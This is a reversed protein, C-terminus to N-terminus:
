CFRLRFLHRDVQVLERTHIRHMARGADSVTHSVGITHVYNEVFQELENPALRTCVFNHFPSANGHM